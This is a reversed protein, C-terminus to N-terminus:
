VNSKCEEQLTFYKNTFQSHLFTKCYQLFDTNFNYEKIYKVIKADPCFLLWIINKDVLPASFNFMWDINENIIYNPNIYLVLNHTMYLRHLHILPSPLNIDNPIIQILAHTHKIKEVSDISLSNSLVFVFDYSSKTKLWSDYLQMAQNVEEDKQVLTCYCCKKLHDLIYTQCSLSASWNSLNDNLYNISTRVYPSLFARIDGVDINANIADIIKPVSDFDKWMWYKWRAGCFYYEKELTFFEQMSILHYKTTDQTKGHYLIHLTEEDTHHQNFEGVLLKEYIEKQPTMCLCHGIFDYNINANSYTCLTDVNLDFLTDFNKKFIYSVDIYIIKRYQRYLSHYYFKNITFKYRAIEDFDVIESYLLLPVKKYPVKYQKLLDMSASSLSDTVIALFDWTSNTRKWSEYLGILPLLYSDTAALATYCYRPKSLLQQSFKSEQEPSMTALIDLVNESYNLIQKKVNPTHINNLAIQGLEVYEAQSLSLLYEVFCFCEFINEFYFWYKKDFNIHYITDVDIENVIPLLFHYLNEDCTLYEISKQVGALITTYAMQSPTLGIVGGWLMKNGNPDPDSYYSGIPFTKNFYNDINTSLITDADLFIIKEFQTLSYMHFKNLTCHARYDAKEQIKLSPVIVYKINFQQLLQLTEDKLTDLCMVTLPYVSHFKQLSYNLSIVGFVYDDTALLTTYSYRKDM